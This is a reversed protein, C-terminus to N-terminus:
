QSESSPMQVAKRTNTLTRSLVDRPISKTLPEILWGLLAPVTRSLSISENQVYVGGDKEEIRWYSNLRWMYGHDKGDTREHEDPGDPNVVEVIRTSRSISQLRTNGMQTEVVQFSVNLVVTVISKNYFQEFIKSEDGNQEMLKSQRIDPKYIKAQAGYDQLVANVESLTANPIFVVGAWHHVLGSPIRIPAGESQTHLEQIYVGGQQLLDYEKQKEADPLHDVVLFQTLGADSEMQAETAEIYRDFAASTEPKLDSARAPAALFAGLGWL